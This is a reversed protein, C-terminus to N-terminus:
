GKRALPNKDFNLIKQGRIYEDANMLENPDKVLIKPKVIKDSSKLESKTSEECGTEMPGEESSTSAIEKIPKLLSKFQPKFPKTEDERSSVLKMFHIRNTDVKQKKKAPEDDIYSNNNYYTKDAKTMTVDKSTKDDISTKFGKCTNYNDKLKNYDEKLTNHKNKILSRHCILIIFKFLYKSIFTM